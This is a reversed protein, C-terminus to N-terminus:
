GATNIIKAIAAADPAAELAARIGKGHLLRSIRALTPLHKERQGAPVVVLVVLRVPQGDLSDFNIGILSRGFALVVDNVQPAAAHPIAIGFGIGTTMSKERQQLALSVPERAEAPFAGAAVLLSVIEDITQFGTTSKLAPFIHEDKFTINM